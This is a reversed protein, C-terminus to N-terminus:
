KGMIENKISQIKPITKSVNAIRLYYIENKYSIEVYERGWSLRHRAGYIYRRKTFKRVVRHPINFADEPLDDLYKDDLDKKIIYVYDGKRM